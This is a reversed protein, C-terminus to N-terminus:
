VQEQRALARMASFLSEARQSCSPKAPVGATYPQGHEDWPHARIWDALFRRKVALKEAVQDLNYIQIM